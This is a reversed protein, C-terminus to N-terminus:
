GNRTLTQISPQPVHTQYQAPKADTRPQLNSQTLMLALRRDLIFKEDKLKAQAELLEMELFSCRKELTTCREHTKGWAIGIILIALGYLLEM